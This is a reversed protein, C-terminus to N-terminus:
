LKNILTAYKDTGLQVTNVKIIYTQVLHQKLCFFMSVKIPKFQAM